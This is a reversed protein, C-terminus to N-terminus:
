RSSNDYCMQCIPCLTEPDLLTSFSSRYQFSSMESIVSHAITGSFIFFYFNSMTGFIQKLLFRSTREKIEYILLRTLYEAFFVFFGKWYKKDM